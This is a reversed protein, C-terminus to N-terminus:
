ANKAYSEHQARIKKVVIFYAPILFCDAAFWAIPNGFCAGVFGFVPVVVLGVFTRGIMEMIGAIIAFASHGMGQIYFRVINVLALFIYLASNIQLFKYAMSIVEAEEKNVFVLLLGRAFFMIFFFAFLCYITNIIVCDRLGKGLRDLRGAGVNQGGYTAMAMGSADFPTAMLMQIKSGATIAGVATSGLTNVSTQLMVSGIATISYQLGMPVGLILLKNVFGKNLNFDSKALRLIEFKKMIFFLCSIGSVFQSIITALAAGRVGIKFVTIFLLDLGINLVSAFILFYVPTKADGLAKIYGSLLNYLITAPIGAFIVILYSYSLDIIDSPTGMAILIGKCFICALLTVIAGIGIALVASNGVFKRLGDEDKAGFRQAIPISFGSCIGNTFGIILFIISGTAGVAALSDLGLLKGVIASDVINYMQQFLLGFITPLIFGLLVKYPKGETMNKTM